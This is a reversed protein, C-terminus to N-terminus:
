ECSSLLSAELADRDGFNACSFYLIRWSVTFCIEISRAPSFFEFPAFYACRSASVSFAMFCLVAPPVRVHICCFSFAAASLITSKITKSAIRRARSPDVHGNILGAPSEGGAASPLQLLPELIWPPTIEEGHAYPSPLLCSRSSTSIIWCIVRM